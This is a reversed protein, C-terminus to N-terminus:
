KDSVFHSHKNETITPYLLGSHKCATRARVKLEAKNIKWNYSPNVQQPLVLYRNPDEFMQSALM